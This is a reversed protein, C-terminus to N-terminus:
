DTQETHSAMGGERSGSLGPPSENGPNGRNNIGGDTEGIRQSRLYESLPMRMAM